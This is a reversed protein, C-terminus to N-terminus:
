DARLALGAGAVDDLGDAVHARDLLAYPAEGCGVAGLEGAGGLLQAGREVDDALDRFCALEWDHVEGGAADGGGGVGRQHHLEAGLAHEDARADELGLIRLAGALRDDLGRRVVVIGLAEGVCAAAEAGGHGADLDACQALVPQELVAAPLRTTTPTRARWPSKSACAFISALSPAVGRTTRVGRSRSPRSPRTMGPPSDVVIVSPM